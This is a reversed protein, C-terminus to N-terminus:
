FLFPYLICFHYALLLLGRRMQTFETQSNLKTLHRSALTQHSIPLEWVPYFFLLLMWFGLLRGRELQTDCSALNRVLRAPPGGQQTHGQNKHTKKYRHKHVQTELISKGTRHVTTSFQIEATECQMTGLHLSRFHQFPFTSTMPGTSTERVVM